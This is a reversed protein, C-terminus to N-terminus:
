TPFLWRSISQFSTWKDRLKVNKKQCYWASYQRQLVVSQFMWEAGEIELSKVYFFEATLKLTSGFRFYFMQLLLFYRFIFVRCLYRTWCCGTRLDINGRISGVNKFAENFLRGKERERERERERQWVFAISIEVCFSVFRRFERSEVPELIVSTATLNGSINWCCDKHKWTKREVETPPPPADSIALQLIWNMSFTPNVQYRHLSM